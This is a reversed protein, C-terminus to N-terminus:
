DSDLANRGPALGWAIATIDGRPLNLKHDPMRPIGRMMSRTSIAPRIEMELTRTCPNVCM